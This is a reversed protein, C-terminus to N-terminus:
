DNENEKEEEVTYFLYRDKEEESAMLVQTLENVTLNGVEECFMEKKDFVRIQTGNRLETLVSFDYIERYKM